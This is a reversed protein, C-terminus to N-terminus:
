KIIHGEIAFHVLANLAFNEKKFRIEGKIDGANNGTDLLQIDVDEIKLTLDKSASYIPILELFRRMMGKGYFSTLPALSGNVEFLINKKRESYKPKKTIGIYFQHDNLQDFYFSKGGYVFHNSLVEIDDDYLGLTDLASNLDYPESTTILLDILPVIFFSPEEVIETGQYNLSIASVRTEPLGLDILFSNISDNMGESIVVSSIHTHSKALTKLEDSVASEKLEVSGDVNIETDEVKFSLNTSSIAEGEQILGRSSWSRFVTRDIMELKALDFSSTAKLINDAQIQLDQVSMSHSDKNVFGLIVGVQNHYAFTQNSNLISEINKSFNKESSLNFIFGSIRENDIEKNFFIIDSHYIIGLDEIEETGSKRQFIEEILRVIDEDEELVISKIGKEFLQRGDIRAVFYSDEPIYNLNNSPSIEFILRGFFFAAWLMVLTFLTATLKKIKRM